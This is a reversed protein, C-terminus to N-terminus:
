LQTAAGAVSITVQAASSLYNQVIFSNNDYRFLAVQAPGDEIRIPESSGITARIVSLVSPPLAYLDAPDNPITLVYFRGKSYNCSLVIPYTTGGPSIGLCRGM